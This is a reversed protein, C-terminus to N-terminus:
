NLSFGLLIGPQGPPFQTTHQLLCAFQARCCSERASSFSSNNARSRASYTPVGASLFAASRRCRLYANAQPSAGQKVSYCVTLPFKHQTLLLGIRSNLEQSKENLLCIFGKNDCVSDACRVLTYCSLLMTCHTMALISQWHQQSWRQM